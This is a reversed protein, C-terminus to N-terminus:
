ISTTCGMALHSGSCRTRRPRSPDGVSVLHTCTPRQILRPVNWSIILCIPWTMIPGLCPQRFQACGRGTSFTPGSSIWRSGALESPLLTFGDPLGPLGALLPHHLAEDAIYLLESPQQKSLVNVAVRFDVDAAGVHIQYHPTDTGGESRRDVVRGVLVGYRTLPM